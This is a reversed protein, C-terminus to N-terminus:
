EGADRMTLRCVCECWVHIKNTNDKEVKATSGSIHFSKSHQQWRCVLCTHTHRKHITECEIWILNTQIAHGHGVDNSRQVMKKALTYYERFSELRRVINQFESVNQVYIQSEPGIFSLKCSIRQHRLSSSDVMYKMRSYDSPHFHWQNRFSSFHYFREPLSHNYQCFINRWNWLDVNVIRWLNSVSMVNSFKQLSWWNTSHCKYRLYVVSVFVLPVPSTAM